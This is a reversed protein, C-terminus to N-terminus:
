EINFDHLYETSVHNARLVINEEGLPEKPLHTVVKDIKGSGNILVQLVHNLGKKKIMIQSMATARGNQVLILRDLYKNGAEEFRSIVLYSARKKTQNMFAFIEEAEPKTLTGTIDELVIIKKNEEYSKLLEIIIKDNLVLEKMKDPIEHLFGFQSKLRKLQEKYKKQKIFRHKDSFLFINDEISLSSILRSKRGVVMTYKALIKAAAASSSEEKEELRIRGSTLTKEGRLFDLFIGQEMLNAFVMGTIEGTFIQLSLDQFVPVQNQVIVGNEVAFVEEKM